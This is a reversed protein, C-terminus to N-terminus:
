YGQFNVGEDTSIGMAYCQPTIKLETQTLSGGLPIRAGAYATRIEGWLVKEVQKWTPATTIAKGGTFVWWLVIESATFSKGSGHCAKVAVRARPKAIAAMIQKPTDWQVHGLVETAFWLPSSAKQLLHRAEEKTPSRSSNRGPSLAVSM